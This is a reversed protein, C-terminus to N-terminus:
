AEVHNRGPQRILSKAPTKTTTSEQHMKVFEPSTRIQLAGDQIMSVTLGYAQLTRRMLRVYETSPAELTGFALLASGDSMSTVSVNRVQAGSFIEIRLRNVFLSLENLHELCAPRSTESSYTFYANEAGPLARIAAEFKSIVANALTAQNGRAFASQETSFDVYPYYNIFKKDTM